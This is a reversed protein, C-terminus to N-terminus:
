EKRNAHTTEHTSPKVTDRTACPCTGGACGACPQQFTQLLMRDFTARQREDLLARISRIHTLAAIESNAYAQSMAEQLKRLQGPDVADATLLAALEGRCACHRSCTAALNTCLGCQLEQITRVQDPRLSLVRTLHSLDRLSELDSRDHRCVWCRTAIYGGVLVALAVSLLWLPRGSM